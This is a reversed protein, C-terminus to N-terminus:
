QLIKGRKNPFLSRTYYDLPAIARCLVPWYYQKSLLLYTKRIRSHVTSVSDHTERILYICLNESDPVVLRDDYLLLGDQFALHKHGKIAEIQLAQLSDFTRNAKLICNVINFHSIVSALDLTIMTYDNIEKKLVNQM